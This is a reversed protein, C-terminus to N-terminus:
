LFVSSNRNYAEIFLEKAECRKLVHKLVTEWVTIKNKKM